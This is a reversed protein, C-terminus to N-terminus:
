HGNKSKIISDVKFKLKKFAYASTSTDEEIKLIDNYNFLTVENYKTKLFLRDNTKLIIEGLSRKGDKATIISSSVKGGGISSPIYPYINVSYLYTYLIFSFLTLGYIVIGDIALKERKGTFLSTFGTNINRQSDTEMGERTMFFIFILISFLFIFWFIDQYREENKFLIYSALLNLPIVFISIILAFYWEPKKKKNNEHRLPWMMLFPVSLLFPTMCIALIYNSPIHLNWISYISIKYFTDSTLFFLFNSLFIQKLVANSFIRFYSNENVDKVNMWLLMLMILFILFLVYTSGALFSTTQFFNFDSIYYPSLHLNIILTGVGIIIFPTIGIIKFLNDEIFNKM